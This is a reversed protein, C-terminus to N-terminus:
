PLLAVFRAYVVFLGLSRAVNGFLYEVRQVSCSLLVNAHPECPMRARKVARVAWCRRLYEDLRM